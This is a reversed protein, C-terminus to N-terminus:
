LDISSLYGWGTWKGQRVKVTVIQGNTVSGYISASTNVDFVEAGELDQCCVHWEESHRTTRMTTRGNSDTSSHYETWAPKYYHNLVETEYYKGSGASCDVCMFLLLGGLLAGVTIFLPKM